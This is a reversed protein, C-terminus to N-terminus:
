YFFANGLLGTLDRIEVQMYNWYCATTGSCARYVTPASCYEGLGYEVDRIKWVVLGFIQIGLIPVVTWLSSGCAPGQEVYTTLSIVLVLARTRSDSFGVVLANVTDTCHTPFEGTYGGIDSSNYTLFLTRSEPSLKRTHHCNM